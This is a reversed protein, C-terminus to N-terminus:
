EANQATLQLMMALSDAVISSSLLSCAVCGESSAAEAKTNPQSAHLRKLAELTASEKAIISAHRHTRLSAKTCKQCTQSPFMQRQKFGADPTGRGSQEFKRSAVHM